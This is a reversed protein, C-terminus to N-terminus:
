WKRSAGGGGSRGGGFERPGSFGRGSRRGSGGFGGFFPGPGVHPGSGPPQVIPRTRYRQERNYGCVPCRYMRVALGGVSPTAEHLVRDTIVLRSRCKPCRRRKMAFYGALLGPLLVLGAVLLILGTSVGPRVFEDEPVIPVYGEPAEIKLEIGADDAVYQAANLLGAYLGKGFEENRFYPIMIDLCEGARGDTIVPELGYGVEMRLEREEMSLIVLLGRDEGEQGIGWKEYLKVGYIEISEDGHDPVIAVAFTAGTQEFVANVLANLNAIDSLTLVGVYDNINGKPEPYTAAGFARSDVLVLIALVLILTGTLRGHKGKFPGNKSRPFTMRLM